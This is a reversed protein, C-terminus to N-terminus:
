AHTIVRFLKLFPPHSIWKVPLGAPLGVVDGGKLEYQDGTEENVLQATGELLLITEDGLPANHRLTASGDPECGVIGVGTRWLGCQYSGTSGTGRITHMEGCVRPDRAAEGWLSPTWRSPNDHINAVFLHDERQAAIPSDWMVWFKKLFPRSIEWQLDLHKPHSLINGAGVMYQRGSVTETIKVTGELIVMTEDGLPASYKVVCSGDRECGAIEYGTRWLGASLSGSTGEERIVAVEGKVQPGHLPDDWGFDTWTSPNLNRNGIFIKRSTM